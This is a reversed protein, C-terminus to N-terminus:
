PAIDPARKVLGYQTLAVGFNLLEKAELNKKDVRGFGEVCLM